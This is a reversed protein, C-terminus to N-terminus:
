EIKNENESTGVGTGGLPPNRNGKWCKGVIAIKIHQQAADDHVFGHHCALVEQRSLGNLSVPLRKCVARGIGRVPELEAKQRGISHFESTGRGMGGGESAPEIDVRLIHCLLARLAFCIVPLLQADNFGAQSIPSRMRNNLNKEETGAQLVLEKLRIRYGQQTQRSRASLTLAKGAPTLVYLTERVAIGPRTKVSHTTSPRGRKCVCMAPLCAYM